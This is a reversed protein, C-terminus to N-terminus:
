VWRVKTDINSVATNILGKVTGLSVLKQFDKLGVVYNNEVLELTELIDKVKETTLM